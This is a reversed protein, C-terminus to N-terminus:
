VSYDQVSRHLSRDQEDHLVVGVCLYQVRKAKALNDLSIGVARPCRKLTPKGAADQSSLVSNNQSVTTYPLCGQDPLDRSVTTGVSYPIDIKQADLTALVEERATNLCQATQATVRGDQLAEELGQRPQRDGYRRPRM